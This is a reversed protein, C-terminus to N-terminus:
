IIGPLHPPSVSPVKGKEPFPINGARFVFNNAEEENAFRLRFTRVDPAEDTVKEIRMVYPKYINDNM